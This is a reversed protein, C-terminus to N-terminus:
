GRRDNAFGKMLLCNDCNYYISLFFFDLPFYRKVYNAVEDGDRYLEDNYYTQNSIATLLGVSKEILSSKIKNSM